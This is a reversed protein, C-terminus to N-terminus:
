RTPKKNDDVKWRCLNITEHKEKDHKDGHKQQKGSHKIFYFYFFSFMGWARSNQVRNGQLKTETPGITHGQLEQVLIPRSEGWSASM